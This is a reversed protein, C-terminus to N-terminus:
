GAATCLRCIDYGGLTPVTVISIQTSTSDSFAVLKEELANIQDRNLMGAFDNVLRPPDPKEPLDQSFAKVLSSGYLLVTVIFLYFINKRM